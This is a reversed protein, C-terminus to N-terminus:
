QAGLVVLEDKIRLKQKKLGAVINQDPQPRGIEDEISKELEAHRIKLDTVQDAATM